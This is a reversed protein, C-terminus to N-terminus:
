NSEADSLKVNLSDKEKQNIMNQDKLDVYLNEDVSKISNNESARYEINKLRKFIQLSNIKEIMRNQLIDRNITKRKELNLNKYM